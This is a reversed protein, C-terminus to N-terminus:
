AAELGITKKYIIHIPIQVFCGFFVAELGCISITYIDFSYKVPVHCIYSGM